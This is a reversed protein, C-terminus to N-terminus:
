REERSLKICELHPFMSLDWWIKFEIFKMLSLCPSVSLSLSLSVVIFLSLRMIKICSCGPKTCRFCEHNNCGLSFFSCTSNHVWICRGKEGNRFVFTNFKSLLLKVTKVSYQSVACSTTARIGGLLCIGCYRGTHSNKKGDFHSDLM